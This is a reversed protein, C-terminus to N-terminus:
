LEASVTRSLLPERAGVAPEVVGALGGGVHQQGQSRYRCNRSVTRVIFSESHINRWNDVMNVTMQSYQREIIHEGIRTQINVMDGMDVM